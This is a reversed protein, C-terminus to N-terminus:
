RGQTEIWKGLVSVEWPQSRGRSHVRSVVDGGTAANYLRLQLLNLERFRGQLSTVDAGLRTCGSKGQMLDKDAIKQAEFKGQMLDLLRKQLGM